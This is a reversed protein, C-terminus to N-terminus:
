SIPSITTALQEDSAENGGDVRAQYMLSILTPVVIGLDYIFYFFRVTKLFM